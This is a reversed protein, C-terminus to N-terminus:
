ALNGFARGSPPRYTEQGCPEGVNPSTTAQIYELDHPKVLYRTRFKESIKSEVTRESSKGPIWTWRKQVRYSTTAQWGLFTIVLTFYYPLNSYGQYESNKGLNELLSDVSVIRHVSTISIDKTLSKPILNPDFETCFQPIRKASLEQATMVQHNSM